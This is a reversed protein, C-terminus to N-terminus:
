VKPYLAITLWSPPLLRRHSHYTGTLIDTIVDALQKACKHDNPDPAINRQQQTSTERWGRNIDEGDRRSALKENKSKHHQISGQQSCFVGKKLKACIGWRNMLTTQNPSPKVTSTIVVDHHMIDSFIHLELPKQSQRSHCCRQVDAPRNM